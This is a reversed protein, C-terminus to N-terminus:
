KKEPITEPKCCSRSEGDKKMMGMVSYRGAGMLALAITIALLSLDVDAAPFSFKKVIVLAVIMVIGILGAAVRTCVGLLVAIGGLFESLAAAYAFVTPLLFGLMGVMGTFATMGPANGFLKGWGHLIFIIGIAIRLALLAWDKCSHACPCKKDMM